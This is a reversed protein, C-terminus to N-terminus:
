GCAGTSRTSSRAGAGIRRHRHGSRRRRLSGIIFFDLVFFPTLLGVTSGWGNSYAMPAAPRGVTASALARGGARVPLGDPRPSVRERAARGPLVRQIPSPMSFNPLAIALYGFMVVTVWLMSLLRVVRTTPVEAESRSLLWICCVLPSAFVLWRYIALPYAGGELQLLPVPIWLVLFLLPLVSRPIIIPERQVALQVGFVVVPLVWVLSHIGLLFTFPMGACIVILPWEM